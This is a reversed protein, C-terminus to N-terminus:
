QLISQGKCSPHSKALHKFCLIPFWQKGFWCSPDLSKHWTGPSTAYLAPALVSDWLPSVLFYQCSSFIHSLTLLEPSGCLCMSLDAWKGAWSLPRIPLSGTVDKWLLEHLGLPCHLCWLHHLHLSINIHTDFSWFMFVMWWDIMPSMRPSLLPLLISYDVVAASLFSLPQYNLVPHHDIWSDLTFIDNPHFPPGEVHSLNALFDTHRNMPNDAHAWTWSFTLSGSHSCLLFLLHQFLPSVQVHGPIPPTSLWPFNPWGDWELALLGSDILWLVFTSNSHIHLDGSPWSCLAMIVTAVEAINNNLLLGHLSSYDYIQVSSSWAAGASCHELGNNTTSGDTWIHVIDLFPALPTIVQSPWTHKTYASVAAMSQCSALHTPHGVQDHHTLLSVPATFM